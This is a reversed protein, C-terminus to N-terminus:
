RDKRDGHTFSRDSFVKWVSIAFFVFFRIVVSRLTVRDSDTKAIKAIEM